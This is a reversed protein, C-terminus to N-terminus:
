KQNAKDSNIGLERKFKPIQSNLHDILETKDYIFSLGQFIVFTEMQINPMKQKAWDICEQLDLVYYSSKNM